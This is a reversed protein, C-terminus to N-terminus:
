SLTELRVRGTGFRMVHASPKTNLESVAKASPKKSGRSQKVSAHITGNTVEFRPQGTPPKDVAIKVRRRREAKQVQRVALKDSESVKGLTVYMSGRDLVPNPRDHVEIVARARDSIMFRVVKITGDEQVVGAYAVNLFILAPAGYMRKYAHAIDCMCACYERWEKDSVSARFVNAADIDIQLIQVMRSETAEEFHTVGFTNLLYEKIKKITGSSM